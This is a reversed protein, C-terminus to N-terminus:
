QVNVVDGSHIIVKGVLGFGNRKLKLSKWEDPTPRRIVEISFPPMPERWNWNGTSPGSVEMLQALTMGGEDPPPVPYAGPRAMRGGIHVTGGSTAPALWMADIVPPPEPVSEVAQCAVLMCLVLGM